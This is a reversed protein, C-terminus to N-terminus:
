AQVEPLKVTIIHGDVWKLQGFYPLNALDAMAVKPMGAVDIHVEVQGKTLGAKRLEEGALFLADTASRSERLSGDGFMTDKQDKGNRKCAIFGHGHRSTGYIHISGVVTTPSNKRSM